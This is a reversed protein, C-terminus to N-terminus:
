LGFFCCWGMRASGGGDGGAVVIWKGPHWAVSAAPGPTQVRLARLGTETEWIDLGPDDSATALYEGDHSFALERVPMSSPTLSNRRVIWEKTDWLNVIADAGGTALYFGRPDLAACYCSNVHAPLRLRTEFQPLSLLELTGSVKSLLLHLGLPSFLFTNLQGHNDHRPGLLYTEAPPDPTDADPGSPPSPSPLIEYLGDDSSLALLSLGTPHWEVTLLEKTRRVDWLALTRDQKSLSVLRFPNTPHWAVHQVPFEHAGTLTTTLHLYVTREPNWLRVAKEYGCSALRKGDASWALCTVYDRSGTKVIVPKYSTPFPILGRSPFSQWPNPAPTPLSIRAQTTDKRTTM